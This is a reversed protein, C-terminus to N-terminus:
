QIEEVIMRRTSYLSNRCLMDNEIISEGEPSDEWVGNVLNQKIIRVQKTSPGLHAIMVNTTM